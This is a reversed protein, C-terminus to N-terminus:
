TQPQLYFIPVNSYQHLPWVLEALVVLELLTHIGYKHLILELEIDLPSLSM